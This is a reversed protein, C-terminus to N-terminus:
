GTNDVCMHVLVFCVYKYKLRGGGRQQIEMCVCVYMPVLLTHYLYSCLGIVYVYLYKIERKDVRACVCKRGDIWGGM